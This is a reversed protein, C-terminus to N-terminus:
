VLHRFTFRNTVFSSRFHYDDVTDLDPGFDFLEDIRIETGNHDHIHHVFINGWLSAVGLVPIVDRRM